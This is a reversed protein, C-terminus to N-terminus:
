SALRRVLRGLEALRALETDLPAVVERDIVTAVEDALARRALRARRAAGVQALRRGVFALLLGVVAGGIALVTPVPANGIRPLPPDPLKFWGLVGLVALWVLGVMMAATAVRQVL